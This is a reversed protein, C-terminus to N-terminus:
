ASKELGEEHALAANVDEPTLSPYEEIIQEVSFGADWYRKITATPIRTGSVVWSNRVVFRRRAVSGVDNQSRIKLEAVKNSVDNIVDIVELMALQGDRLNEVDGTRPDKFYVDKKLVYLTTDAWHDFGRERLGTAVEKLKSFSIKYRSRLTEVTKLGVVDKFSYIRGYASKRDRYAHKPEFFGKKDWSRLQTVSLGTVRAVHDETLAIVNQNHM